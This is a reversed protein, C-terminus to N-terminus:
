LVQLMAVELTKDNAGLGDRRGLVLLGKPCATQMTTSRLFCPTIGSAKPKVWNMKESDFINIHQLNDSVHLAFHRVPATCGDRFDFTLDRLCRSRKWQLDDVDFIHVHSQAMDDYTFALILRGSRAVPPAWGPSAAINTVLAVWIHTDIDMFYLENTDNLVFVRSEVVFMRALAMPPPWSDNGHSELQYWSLKQFDFIWFEDSIDGNELNGGFLFLQRKTCALSANSRPAPVKTSSSKVKNWTFTGQGIVLQYFENTLEGSKLLGGFMYVENDTACYSAETRLIPKSGLIRPEVWLTLSM